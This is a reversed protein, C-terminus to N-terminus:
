GIEGSYFTLENEEAAEFDYLARVKRPEKEEVSSTGGAGGGGALASAQPYLSKNQSHTQAEKLSLEIAAFIRFSYVKLLLMVYLHM